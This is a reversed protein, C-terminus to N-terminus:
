FFAEHAVALLIRGAGFPLRDDAIGARDPLAVQDPDGAGGGGILFALDDADAIGLRLRQLRDAVDLLRQLREARRQFVDHARAHEDGVDRQPLFVARRVALDEALDPGGRRHDLDAAQDVVVHEDLDLGVRNDVGSGSGSPLGSSSGGTAGFSSFDVPTTPAKVSADRTSPKTRSVINACTNPSLAPMSTNMMACAIG